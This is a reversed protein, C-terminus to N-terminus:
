GQKNMPSNSPSYRDKHQHSNWAVRGRLKEYVHRLNKVKRYLPSSGHILSNQEDPSVLDPAYLAKIKALARLDLARWEQFTREKLANRHAGFVCATAWDIVAVSGDEALLINSRHLDGHSVGRRHAAEITAELACVSEPSLESVNMLTAGERWEILICDADPRAIPAPIGAIGKLARLAKWERRLVPRGAVVRFWLPRNKLDKLVAREKEGVEVLSVDAKSWNRAAHLSKQPLNELERRTM